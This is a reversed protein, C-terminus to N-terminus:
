RRGSLVAGMWLAARRPHLLLRPDLGVARRLCRAAAARDGVRRHNRAIWALHRAV